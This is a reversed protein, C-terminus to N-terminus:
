KESKVDDVVFNPFWCYIRLRLWERYTLGRKAALQDVWKMMPDIQRMEVQGVPSDILATRLDDHETTVVNIIRNIGYLKLAEMLKESGRYQILLLEVEPLLVGLGDETEILWGDSIGEGKPIATLSRIEEHDGMKWGNKPHTDIFFEIRNEDRILACLATIRKIPLRKRKGREVITLNNEDSAQNWRTLNQAFRDAFWQSSREEIPTDFEEDEEGTFIESQNELAEIVPHTPVNGSLIECPEHQNLAENGAM